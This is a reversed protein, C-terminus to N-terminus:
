NKLAAQYVEVTHGASREWSLAGCAKEFAAKGMQQREAKNKLLHIIKEALASVDRPPVVFGTKGEDVAEPISGVDTVVVPKGFSYALPLVGSQTGDIYPMAVVSASRFLDCVMTNDIYKNHIIYRDRNEMMAEYKEFNEGTGAIVIKADPVVKTILPEAQILYQLGKYEWIRGFFLITNKNEKIKPNEWHKYFFYNGHRVVHTKQLSIDFLRCLEEKQKDGHVIVHDAYKRSMNHINLPAKKSPKDGSHRSVDHVTNVLAWKKGKLFPWVFNFWLHGEQMHIIDPKHQRIRKLIHCIMRVNSIERLRPYQFLDLTVDKDIYPLYPEVREKPMMLTLDVIKALANALQITYELFYFSLLVVKM